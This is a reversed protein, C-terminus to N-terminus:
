KKFVPLVDPDYLQKKNLESELNSANHLDAVLVDDQELDSCKNSAM